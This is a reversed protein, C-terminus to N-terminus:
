LERLDVGYHEQLKDYLNDFTEEVSYTNQLIEEEGELVPPDITIISKHKELDRVLERGEPTSIDIHVTVTM